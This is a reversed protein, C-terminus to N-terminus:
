RHRPDQGAPATGSALTPESLQNPGSRGALIMITGTAMFGALILNVRRNFAAYRDALEFMAVRADEKRIKGDEWRLQHQHFTSDRLIAVVRDGTTVGLAAYFLGFLWLVWGAVFLMKRM